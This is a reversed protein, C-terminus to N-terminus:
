SLVQNIKETIIEKLYGANYLTNFLSVGIRDRQDMFSYMMDMYYRHIQEREKESAISNVKELDLYYNEFRMLM